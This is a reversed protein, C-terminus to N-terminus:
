QPVTRYARLCNILARLPFRCLSSKHFRLLVEPFYFQCSTRALSFDSKMKNGTEAAGLEQSPWLNPKRPSSFLAKNPPAMRQFGCREKRDPPARASELINLDSVGGLLIHEFLKRKMYIMLLTFRVVNNGYYLM